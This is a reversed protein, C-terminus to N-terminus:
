KLRPVWRPVEKLYQEYQIGFRNRLVPEEYLAVFLHVGGFIGAICLLVTVSAAQLLVAESVLVLLAGVYIPNRVYRFFGQVVLRRPPDFPAPTGQGLTAFSWIAAYCMVAGLILPLVAAYRVPGLNWPHRGYRWVLM